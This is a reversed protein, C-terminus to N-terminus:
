IKSEDLKRREPVCVNLKENYSFFEKKLKTTPHVSSFIKVGLIEMIVNDDNEEKEERSCIYVCIWM